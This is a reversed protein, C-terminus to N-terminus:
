SPDGKGTRPRPVRRAVYGYLPAAGPIEGGGDCSGSPRGTKLCRGQDNYVVIIYWGVPNKVVFKALIVPFNEVADRVAGNATLIGTKGTWRGSLSPCEAPFLPDECIVASQGPPYERSAWQLIHVAPGPVRGKGSPFNPHVELATTHYSKVTLVPAKAPDRAPIRGKGHPVSTAPERCSAGGM